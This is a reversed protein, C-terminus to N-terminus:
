RVKASSFNLNKRTRLSERLAFKSIDRTHLSERILLLNFIKFTV